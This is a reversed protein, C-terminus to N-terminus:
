KRYGSQAKQGYDRVFDTMDDILQTIEYPMERDLLQYRLSILHPRPVSPLTKQADTFGCENALQRIQSKLRPYKLIMEYLRTHLEREVTAKDNEITIVSEEALASMDAFLLDSSDNQATSLLLAAPSLVPPTKSPSVDTGQEHNELSENMCRLLTSPLFSPILCDAESDSEWNLEDTDTFDTLTPASPQDYDPSADFLSFRSRRFM